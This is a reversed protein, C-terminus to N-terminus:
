SPRPSSAWSTTTEWSAGSAASAAVTCCRRSISYTRSTAETIRTSPATQHGVALPATHDLLIAGEEVDGLVGLRHREALTAGRQDVGLPEGAGGLTLHPQLDLALVRGARELVAAHGRGDRHGDVLTGLRDDAGGRAVRAGRHGGVGGLGPDGRDHEDGVALDAGGLHGLRQDVAGLHDLHAAVEVVAELEGAREGVAVRDRQDVRDVRDAELALLRRGELDDVTETVGGVVVQHGDAVGAVQGGVPEAVLLVGRGAVGGLGRHHTGELGLTRGREHEAVRDLVGLGPRGRDADAVRGGPLEGLGRGGLGTATETREGVVLDEGGLGLQGAVVADEDLGGRGGADGPQEGVELQPLGVGPGGRDDGDGTM